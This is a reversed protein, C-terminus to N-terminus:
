QPVVASYEFSFTVDIDKVAKVNKGSVNMTASDNEKVRSLLGHDNWTYYCDADHSISLGETSGHVHDTASISVDKSKEDVFYKITPEAYGKVQTKVYAVTYLEILALADKQTETLEKDQQSITCDLTKDYTQAGEVENVVKARGKVTIKSVQVGVTALNQAYIQDFEGESIEKGLNVGSCAGLTVVAALMMPLIFRNKMQKEGKLRSLYLYKKLM